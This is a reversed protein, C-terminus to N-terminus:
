IFVGVQGAQALNLFVVKVEIDWAIHVGELFLFLDIQHGNLRLTFLDLRLDRLQVLLHVPIQLLQTITGLPHLFPIKASPIVSTEPWCTSAWCTLSNPFPCGYRVPGESKGFPAM